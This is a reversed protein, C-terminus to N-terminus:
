NRRTLDVYFDIGSHIQFSRGDVSEFRFKLATEFPMDVTLWEFRRNRDTTDLFVKEYHPVGPSSIIIKVSGTIEFGVRSLKKRYSPEGFTLYPSEWAADIPSPNDDDFKHYRREWASTTDGTIDLAEPNYHGFMLLHWSKQTHPARVHLSYVIGIDTAVFDYIYESQTASIETAAGTALDFVVIRTSVLIFLRDNWFACREPMDHLYLLDGGAPNATYGRLYSQFSRDSDVRQPSSGNYFWIGESNAWYPLGYVNAVSTHDWLLTEESFFIRELTFQSPSAGYLRYLEHPKFILLQTPMAFLALIRDASGVEVHGGGTDVSADDAAWDEITRGDGPVCSWYLRCPHDPDGAAFLRSYYETFLYNQMNSLGGRVKVYHGVAVGSVAYEFTIVTTNSNVVVSSVRAATYDMEDNEHAMIYVGAYLCRTKEADTMARGITVSRTLTNDTTDPTCATIADSTLFMGTGFDRIKCDHEGIGDEIVLPAFGSQGLIVSSVGNITVSLHTAGRYACFPHLRTQESSTFTRAPEAIEASATSANFVIDNTVFRTFSNLTGEPRNWMLINPDVLERWGSPSNSDSFKPYGISGIFPRLSGDSTDINMAESAFGRDILNDALGKKFGYFRPISYLSATM